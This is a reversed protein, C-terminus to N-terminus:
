LVVAQIPYHIICALTVAEMQTLRLLIEQSYCKLCSPATKETKASLQFSSLSKYSEPGM